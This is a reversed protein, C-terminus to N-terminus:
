HHFPAPSESRTTSRPASADLPIQVNFSDKWGKLGVAVLLAVPRGVEFYLQPRELRKVTEIRGDAWGIRCGTVFPRKELKWDLGDQSEFLVLTHGKRRTFHRGFDKVIARFREGDHWIFPDESPFVSDGATFQPKMIKRFPGTPSKSTAVLHVVPGGRPLPRKKAMAKYVMVYTGDPRMAVAPTSVNLADPAADDASVDILPKDFRIWPGDLSDAVAVGIRQNNRQLWNCADKASVGDGTSGLYYLYWKNGFRHVTPNHTCPGDWYELGRPPLAVDKHTWPGFPSPGTAHAIESHTMWSGFGLSKKWRSYFLHYVGADDKALSGGWVYYGDEALKATAPVPRIWAAIDSKDSASAPLPLTAAALAGVLAVPGCLRALGLKGINVTSKM